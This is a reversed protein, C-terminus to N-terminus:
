VPWPRRDLTSLRLYQWNLEVSWPKDCRADAKTTSLQCCRAVSSIGHNFQRVKSNPCLELPFYWKSSISSNRWLVTCAIPLLFDGHWFILGTREDMKISRRSTVSVTSYCLTARTFHERYKRDDSCCALPFSLTGICNACRQNEPSAMKLALFKLINKWIFYVSAIKDFLVLFSNHDSILM